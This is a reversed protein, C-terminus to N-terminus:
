IGKLRTSCAAERIEEAKAKDDDVKKQKTETIQVETQQADEKLNALNLLRAEIEGM